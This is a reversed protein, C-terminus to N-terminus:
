SYQILYAPYAKDNDYTMYVWSGGTTGTVTDYRTKAFQLSGSAGGPKEPPLRLSRDSTCQYSDGTLVKVLFMERYGNSAQYAYANSYSANVAFYNALGWMGQASFRADFGDEGEYILKPDNHRTGHFLEKENVAGNNKYTLRQKHQAYREWLWKNQIRTIQQIHQSPLTASFRAEVKNWEMSNPALPFLELNATQPQWDTPVEVESGEAASAQYNIIEELIASTALHVNHALGRFHVVKQFKKGGKTAVQDADQIEFSLKHQQVIKTVVKELGTPFDLNYSKVAAKLKEELKSKALLLNAQPGRLVVVSEKKVEELSQSMTPKAVAESNPVKTGDVKTKRVIPRMHATDVNVQCMRKFDFSYVRGGITLPSPKGATFMLEIANSDPPTYPVLKANDNTFYWQIFQHSSGSTVPVKMVRRQYKTNENTQTMTNLDVCYVNGNMKFRLHGLPNRKFEENLKANLYVSYPSYSGHDDQWHWTYECSFLNAPPKNLHQEEKVTCGQLVTPDTGDCFLDALKQQLLVFRVNTVCSSPNTQSFDQVAKLSARVCVDYPVGFIGTGIAPIAISELGEGQAVILANFVTIYLAEEEGSNGGVWRPGVAHIIRKCTLNGAGLCVVSGTKLKGHTQIYQNSEQQIADGGAAVIARALGGAHCLDENAANVIAGVRENVLTGKCIDLKICNATSAVQLFVTKIVQNSKTLVPFTGVVCLDNRLKAYFHTFELTSFFPRLTPDVPFKVEGLTSQIATIVQQVILPEVQPIAEPTGRLVLGCRPKKLCHVSVGFPKALGNALTLHSLSKTKSQLLLGVVPDNILIEKQTFARNGIYKQIEEEAAELDDCCEQPATLIVQNRKSDIFMNVTYQDHVHLEKESLGKFLTKIAKPPVDIRKEITLQGNDQKCIMEKVEEIGDQDTGFITFEYEVPKDQNSAEPVNIRPFQVILDYNQEKEKKIDKWRNQWMGCLRRKCEVRFSKVIFSDGIMETIGQEVLRVQQVTGEVQILVTDERKQQDLVKLFRCKQQLEQFEDSKKQQLYKAQHRSLPIFKKIPVTSDIYEKLDTMCQTAEDESLGFILITNSQKPVVIRVRYRKETDSEGIREQVCEIANAYKVKLCKSCLDIAKMAAVAEEFAASEQSMITVTFTMEEDRLSTKRGQRKRTGRERQQENNNTIYLLSPYKKQIPKLVHQEIQSMFRYHAKFPFSQYRLGQLLPGEMIEKQTKEIDRPSGELHPVGKGKTVIKAPLSALIHQTAESSDGLKHQLFQMQEHSCAIPSLQVSLKSVLSSVSEFASQVDSYVYSRIYVKKEAENVEIVVSHENEVKRFQPPHRRSDCSQFPVYKVALKGSVIKVAKEHDDSSFSCVTVNPSGESALLCAAINQVKLKKRASMRLTATIPIQPTVVSKQFHVIVSEIYTHAEVIDSTRGDLKLLTSGENFGSLTVSHNTMMITHLDPFISLLAM